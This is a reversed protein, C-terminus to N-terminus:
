IIKRWIRKAPKSDKSHSTSKKPHWFWYWFGAAVVAGLFWYPNRTVLVVIITVGGVIIILRVYWPIRWFWSVPKPQQPTGAGAKRRVYGGVYENDDDIYDKPNPM